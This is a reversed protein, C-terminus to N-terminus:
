QLVSREVNESMGATARKRALMVEHRRRMEPSAFGTTLAIEAFAVSETGGFFSTFIRWREFQEVVSAFLWQTLRDGPELEGHYDSLPLFPELLAINADAELHGMLQQLVRAAREREGIDALIRALSLMRPVSPSAQCLMLVIGSAAQLAALRAAGSLGADRSMAYLNLASWYVEWDPQSKFRAEWGARLARAYPYRYLYNAWDERDVGPFYGLPATVTVLCGAAEWKEACGGRRCAFLNLTFADLVGKEDLPALLNLGPVLRYIDYGWERFTNAISIDVNQNDPKANFMVLPSNEAFFGRADALVRMEKAQLNLRVFDISILGARHMESDLNLRRDGHILLCLNGLGNHQKGIELLRGEGPTRTTAWVQAEKAALPVAYVGVGANIDLVRMEAHVHDLVFRYEPDFWGLQEKLVYSELNEHSTSVALQTGGYVPVFEAAVPIELGVPSGPFKRNWAEIYAAEMHRTLRVPDCLISTELAEPLARRLEAIREPIRALAVANAIYEGEDFAILDDLKLGINSLISYSLRQPYIKGVLTIVPVGMWVADITTTGGTQPFTDLAIDIENYYHLHSGLPHEEWVIDIREAEIGNHAFEQMLRQRTLEPECNPHNIVIRSGEVQRLISSWAAVVQPNLKYLNNLSGFTVWGNRVIPPEPNIPQVHLSDFTIFSEPLRLQQETFYRANEPGDLFPDSIFYDVTRLGSSYPYGLYMIQVPAPRYALVALRGNQTLGALDVLIHIGDSHIRDALQSDSLDFVNVFVDASAEYQQTIEDGQKLNSYCYIEFRDRDHHNILGRFFANVVHQRFDPSLYAVKLRGAPPEAMDPVAFPTGLVLSEMIRGAAKHIDLLKDPQLGETALLSLSSSELETLQAIQRLLYPLAHEAESWLCFQRALSYAPFIATGPSELRFVKKAIELADKWRKLHMLATLLNSLMEGDEPSLALARQYYEVAKERQHRRVWIVGMNNLAIMNNPQVELTRQFYTEADDIRNLALYMNGLNMLAGADAPSAENIKKFCSIARDYDRVAMDGYGYSIGLNNLADLHNPALELAKKLYHIAEGFKKELLLASGLLYNAQADEPNKQLLKVCLRKAELTKGERTLQTAKPLLPREAPPM